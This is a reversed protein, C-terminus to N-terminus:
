VFVICYFTLQSVIPSSDLLTKHSIHMHCGNANFQEMIM